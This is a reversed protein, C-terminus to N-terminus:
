KTLYWYQPFMAYQTLALFSSPAGGIKKSVAYVLDGNPIFLAPVDKTLYSAENTVATPDTGYVSDNILKDATPDSFAGLNYDGTTNFISSTTPDADLTFGGFDMVGWLNTYKKDAPNADDLNAIIYNFTKEKLSIDIGAAEKAESSFAESELSEQVQNSPPIYYWNFAFPTGAPIGAGCEGAGTGAKACTSQGGPVVKWGHSKLLAVAAAPDYAYPISKANAPTFPTPPLSPVPGAAVVGANKFIGTLYAPQNELHVLAQRIYLQKIISNFHGTTDKFNFVAYNFSLAPYGFVSYGESRISSSQALQSFDLTDIDLSGTKVANLEPTLATYTVGELKAASPKPSGGFDPNAVMTWSSNTTNFTSIKYAGDAIKWLPNTGFSSLEGGSKSLYTYIKKANAPVNYNLHAGGASAVNWSTSPMPNIDGQIQDDLFYSPNFAKKLTIVVSYKGTEKLSAISDPFQGPTYASWNAPSEKVAQKILDIDFILDNADVPQGNSWRYNTNMDITITKDGNSFIPKKGISVAYNIQPSGGVPTNYLPLYMVNIFFDATYVSADAAPVIPFIDTPTSGTLQGWSITGGKVATGAPPLAGYLGTLGAASAEGTSSSAWVALSMAIAGILAIAVRRRPARVSAQMVPPCGLSTESGVNVRRSGVM